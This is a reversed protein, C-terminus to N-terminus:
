KKRVKDLEALWPNSAEAPKIEGFTVTVGDPTTISTVTKGAKEARKILTAISPKRPCRPKKKEGGVVLSIATLDHAERMM